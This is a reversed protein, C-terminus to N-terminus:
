LEKNRWGSTKDGAEQTPNLDPVEGDLKPKNVLYVSCLDGTGCSGAAELEFLVIENEQCKPKILPAPVYLTMQPGVRPWYRGLNFGNVFAVGKGWGPTSLFVDNAAIDQCPTKFTGAWFGGDKHKSQSYQPVLENKTLSSLPLGHMKWGHLTHGNLTVSSIIGKQDADMDPGFNIRGQSEVLIQLIQNSKIQIPMSSVKEFRGFIGVFNNDVFVYGRDHIVKVELLAPDSTTNKFTHQYLVFGNDQGLQEFTMPKYSKSMNSFIDSKQLQSFVNGLYTLKVEGYNAKTGNKVSMAPISTYNKLVDRIAVYKDTLDGAESIPADYDYSTPQPAFPASNAGANFGFSTGGHVMYLNVNAGLDLMHSLSKIIAETGVKAHKGGWHDLWGPYFESNVLPGKSTFHRQVAFAASPNSGAGFDVTPYVDPIYGCRSFLTIVKDHLM